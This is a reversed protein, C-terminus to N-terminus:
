TTQLFQIVFKNIQAGYETVRFNAFTGTIAALATGNWWRCNEVGSEGKISITLTTSQGSAGFHVIGLGRKLAIFHTGANITGVLNFVEDPVKGPLRKHLLFSKNFSVSSMPWTSNPTDDFYFNFTDTQTGSVKVKSNSNGYHYTTM